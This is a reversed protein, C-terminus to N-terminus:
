YEYESSPFEKNKVEDSYKKVAEKVLSAGDLYKKAFKPLFDEFFGLM